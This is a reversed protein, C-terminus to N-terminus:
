VMMGDAAAIVAGSGNFLDSVTDIDPDYGMMALVWRTFAPPKSGVFSSPAPAILTDSVLMGVKRGRRSEPIYFVVPEWASQIRSGSPVANPRHWVGVRVGGRQLVRDGMVNLYLPLSDVNGCLAFADFDDLLSQALQIHSEPEDWVAAEPHFDPKGEGRAVGCGNGYWRDARGFYPPDAIALKM